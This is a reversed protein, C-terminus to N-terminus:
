KNKIIDGIEKLLDKYQDREQKLLKNLFTFDEIEKELELITEDKNFLKVILEIEKESKV